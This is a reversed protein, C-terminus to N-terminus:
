LPFVSSEPKDQRSDTKKEGDTKTDPNRQRSGDAFRMYYFHRIAAGVAKFGSLLRIGKLGGDIFLIDRLNRMYCNRLRFSRTRNNYRPCFQKQHQIDYCQNQKHDVEAIFFVAPHIQAQTTLIFKIALIFDSLTDGFPHTRRSKATLTMKVYFPCSACLLQM